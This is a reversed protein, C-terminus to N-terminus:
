SEKEDYRKKKALLGAGLLLSLGALLPVIDDDQGTKPLITAKEPISGSVVPTLMVVEVTKNNKMPQNIELVEVLVESDKVGAEKSSQEGSLTDKIDTQPEIVIINSLEEKSKPSEEKKEKSRGIDATANDSPLVDLDMTNADSEDIGLAPLEMIDNSLKSSSHDDSAGQDNAFSGEVDSNLNGVVGVHIVESIPQVLSVKTSPILEGTDSNVTYSIITTKKGNQGQVVVSSQGKTLTSDTVQLTAYPIEEVIVKPKIGVKIIADVAEKTSVTTTPIVQGTRPDVSYLTTTKKEGNEGSVVVTRVGVEMMPDAEYVTTAPLVQTVTEPKVGVSIVADIPTETTTASNSITIEGTNANVNYSTTTVQSGEKGSVEVKSLGYKLDKDAKYMTGYALTKVVTMDPTPVVTIIVNVHDTSHDSYTATVRLTYDGETAETNAAVVLSGTTSDITVTGPFHDSNVAFVVGVPTNNTEMEDITVNDFSPAAVTVSTGPKIYKHGGNDTYLPTYNDSDVEKIKVTVTVTKRVVQNSSLAAQYVLQYTGPQEFNADSYFLTVPYTKGDAATAVPNIVTAITDANYEYRYVSADNAKLELSPNQVTLKHNKVVFTQKDANNQIEGELNSKLRSTGEAHTVAIIMGETLDLVKTSSTLSQNGKYDQTYLVNGKADSISITAYTSDGFGWHPQVKYDQIVLKETSPDATITTFTNNAYGQLSIEQLQALAKDLLEQNKDKVGGNALHNVVDQAAAITLSTTTDAITSYSSNDFLDAVSSLISDKVSVEEKNDTNLKVYVYHNSLNLSDSSTALTYIGIPLSTVTVTKSDDTATTPVDIKYVVQNGNKLYLTQGALAKYNNVVLQLGATLGTKALDDTTVLSVRSKLIDNEWGLEKMVSTIMSSDVLQTLMAVARSASNAATMATLEDIPVGITNFYPTLDLQYNKTFAEVWLKGLDNTANSSNKNERHYTNFTTLGDDGKLLALQLLLILRPRYGLDNYVQNNEFLAKELSALNNEKGGDYLWSKSAYTEADTYTYKAQYLAGYVNNFVDVIEMTSSPIEYGHAIEHLTLWGDYLYSSISSSNTAIWKASSYYAAGIGDKDAMGFYRTVIPVASTNYSIGTLQAYDKFIQQDYKTLLESLSVKKAVAIDNYPVQLLINYAKILSFSTKAEDWKNIFDDENEGYTYIFLKEVRGSAVQYTVDYNGSVPTKIYPVCDVTATITVEDGNVKLDYTKETKSSHGILDLVVSSIPNTDMSSIKIKISSGAALVIGLEQRDMNNAMPRGENNTQTNRPLSFIKTTGQNEAIGPRKDYLNTAKTIEQLLKEKQVEGLYTNSSIENKLTEIMSLSTGFSLHNDDVFLKGVSQNLTAYDTANILHYNNTNVTYSFTKVSSLGTQKLTADTVSVRGPEDQYISLMDGYTLQQTDIFKDKSTGTFTHSYITKNDRLVSITAYVSNDYYSHPQNGNGSVTLIGTNADYSVTGYTTNGLGTLTWNSIESTSTTSSTNQFNDQSQAVTVAEEAKLEKTQTVTNDAVHEAEDVVVTDLNEQHEENNTSVTEQGSDEVALRVDDNGETTDNQTTSIDETDSSTDDLTTAVVQSSTIEDANATGVGLFSLGVLVSCVGVTLRKITYRQRTCVTCKRVASKAKFIKKM